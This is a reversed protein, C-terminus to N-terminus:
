KRPVQHTQKSSFVQTVINKFAENPVPGRNVVSYDKVAALIEQQVDAPPIAMGLEKLRYEISARGSKKGLIVERQRGLFEPLISDAYPVLPLGKEQLKLIRSVVIGSESSFVRGGVLPKTTQLPVNSLKEVLKCLGYTKEYQIGLDIGLMIKLDLAIEELAANGAGEGLGNVATHVVEAGACVGALANATAFGFFDHPHIEVPIRAFERVKKVFHYCAQPILVGRSDALAISNPHGRSIIIELFKRLDDWPTRTSDVIFNIVRLGKDKAFLTATVMKEAAQELTWGAAHLMYPSPFIDIVATSIGSQAATAVDHVDARCLGAIEAKLGLSKIEAVAQADEQSLTPALEIRHVGFEDLAKAIQVKDEKRFVVGPHQEGDRLTSDHLIVKSPLHMESRVEDMFNYPSVCWQETLFPSTM